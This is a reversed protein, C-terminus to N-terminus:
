SHAHESDVLRKKAACLECWADYVGQLAAANPAYNLDGPLGLLNSTMVFIATLQGWDELGCHRKLYMWAMRFRHSLHGLNWNFVKEADTCSLVFARHSRNFANLAETKSM